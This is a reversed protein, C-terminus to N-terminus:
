EILTPVSTIAPGL